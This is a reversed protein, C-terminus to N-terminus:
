PDLKGGLAGFGKGFFALHLREVEDILNVDTFREPYCRAALWLVGAASLPSPFDWPAINSPFPHVRHRAVAAVNAYPPQGLVPLARAAAEGSPM